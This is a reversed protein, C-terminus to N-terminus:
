FKSKQSCTCFGVFRDDQKSRKSKPAELKPNDESVRQKSPAPHNHSIPPTSIIAYSENRQKRYRTYNSKGTGYPPSENVKKIFIKVGPESM